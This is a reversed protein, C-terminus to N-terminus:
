LLDRCAAGDLKIDHHEVFLCVLFCHQFPQLIAAQAADALPPVGALASKGVLNQLILHLPSDMGLSALSSRRRSVGPNAISNSRVSRRLHAVALRPTSTCLCRRSKCPTEVRRLPESGCLTTACRCHISLDAGCLVAFALLSYGLLAPAHCLLPVRRLSLCRSPTAACPSPM